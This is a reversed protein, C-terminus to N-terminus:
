NSVGRLEHLTDFNIQTPTFHLVVLMLVFGAAVNLFFCFATKNMESKQANDGAWM